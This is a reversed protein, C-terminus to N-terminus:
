MPTLGKAKIVPVATPSSLFRVFEDVAAPSQLAAPLAAGFVITHQIEAPLPTADVGAIAMLEPMQQAGLEVEGKAVLEAVFGQRVLTTKPRMAEALGLRDLLGSMFVGSDAGENRAFSKAALLTRKFAEVTAIDPKPAGARVALGISSSAVDVRRALKSERILDDAQRATLFAVDPTEGKRIREVLLWSSEYTVALKHGSTREFQPILEALMTRLPPPYMVKIEAAAATAPLLMLLLSAAIGSSGGAFRLIGKSSQRAHVRRSM